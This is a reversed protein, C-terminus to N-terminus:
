NALNINSIGAADLPIKDGCIIYEQSKSYINSIHLALCAAHGHRDGARAWHDHCRFLRTLLAYQAGGSAQPIVSKWARAKGFVLWARTGM